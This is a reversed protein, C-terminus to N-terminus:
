LTTRTQIEADSIREPLYVVSKILFASTNPQLWLKGGTLDIASSSNDTAAVSGNLILSIDNAAWGLGANFLTGTGPAATMAGSVQNAGGTVASVQLLTPSGSYQWLSIYNSGDKYLRFAPNTSGAPATSLLVGSLIITGASTDYPLASLLLSIDDVARTVTSATTKIYSTALSGTELQAKTLGVTGTVGSDWIPHVRISTCGAPTTFTHTIRTWTSANTQSYYDVGSGIFANNTHDYLLFKTATMTGRKAYFSLTYVTSAITTIIERVYHSSASTTVTCGSGAVGDPGALNALVTANAKAWAANTLDDSYTLLNTAAKEILLGLPSNSSDHHTRLSTGSSLLGNALRIVKASPATYTLFNNPSDMTFNAPTGRDRVYGRMNIFDLALGEKENGLLAIAPDLDYPAARNSYQLSAM